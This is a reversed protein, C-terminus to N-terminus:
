ESGLLTRAGRPHSALHFLFQASHSFSGQAQQQRQREKRRRGQGGERVLRIDGLALGAHLDRGFIGPLDALHPTVADQIRLLKVPQRLLEDGLVLEFLFVRGEAVAVQLGSVLVKVVAIGPVIGAAHVLHRQHHQDGLLDAAPLQLLVPIQRLSYGYALRLLVDQCVGVVVIRVFHAVIQVVSGPVLHPALRGHAVGIQVLGIVAGVIHVVAVVGGAVDGPHQFGQVEAPLLAEGIHDGAQEIGVGDVVELEGVLHPFILDGLFVAAEHVVVVAVPVGSDADDVGLVGDDDRHQCQVRRVGLLHEGVRRDQKGVVGLLHIAPQVGVTLRLGLGLALALLLFPGGLLLALGLLLGDQLLLGLGFM